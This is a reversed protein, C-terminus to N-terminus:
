SLPEFSSDDTLIYFPDGVDSGIITLRLPLTSESTKNMSLEAGANQEAKPLLWRYHKNGDIIEILAAVQTRGGVPPPSFRYHKVVAPPGPSAAIETITGGGFVAQFNTLSWEQLDVEVTATDSTQWRRTPFNSQHSTVEEFNPDTAFSLSDPTFYGVDKWDVDPTTVPDAPAVTGVPALYVRALQPVLIRTADGAM